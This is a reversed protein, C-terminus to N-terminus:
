WFPRSRDPPPAPPNAPTSAPRALAELLLRRAERCVKEMEARPAKRQRCAQAEAVVADLEPSGIGAARLGDVVATLEEVLKEFAGQFGLRRKPLRELRDALERAKERLVALPDPTVAYYRVSRTSPSAPAAMPAHLFHDQVSSSCLRQLMGTRSAMVEWGAPM